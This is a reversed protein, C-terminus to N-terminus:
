QPQLSFVGYRPDPGGRMVRIEVRDDPFLGIVALADGGGDETPVFALFVRLPAGAFTLTALADAEAEPLSRVPAAAFLGDSTSLAGAFDALLTDEIVLEAVVNTEFGRSVPADGVRPGQWTGEFSRLDTCAGTAVLLLLAATYLVARM